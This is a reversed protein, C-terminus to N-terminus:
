GFESDVRQLFEDTINIIENGYQRADPYDYIPKNERVARAITTSNRLCNNFVYTGVSEMSKTVNAMVQQTLKTRRDIMTFVIGLEKAKHESDIEYEHLARQLLPLGLSSLYDPKIPILIADSAKYASLTFISMTPPCDLFIFDYKSKAHENIFKKLRNETGHPSTSIEMLELHSPIIDLRAPITSINLRTHELDLPVTQSQQKSGTTTSPSYDNRRKFIDILPRQKGIEVQEIYDKYRKEPVLYQTANFQPDLDILLVDKGHKDVLCWALNATLTTKGVGGKMNITSIVIANKQSM